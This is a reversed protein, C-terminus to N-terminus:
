FCSRCRTWAIALARSLKQTYTHLIRDITEQEFKARRFPGLPLNTTLMGICHGVLRALWASPALRSWALILRDALILSCHRNDTNILGDLLYPNSELAEGVDAWGFTAAASCVDVNLFEWQWTEMAWALARDHWQNLTKSDIFWKVWDSKLRALVDWSFRDNSKCDALQFRVAIPDGLRGRANAYPVDDHQQPSFWQRAVVPKGYREGWVTMVEGDSVEHHPFWENMNDLPWLHEDAGTLKLIVRANLFPHENKMERLAVRQWGAATAWTDCTPDFEDPNFYALLAHKDQMYEDLIQRAWRDLAPADLM